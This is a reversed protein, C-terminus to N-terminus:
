QLEEKERLHWLDLRYTRTQVVPDRPAPQSISFCQLLERSIREKLDKYAARASHPARGTLSPFAPAWALYGDTRRLIIIRYSASRDM